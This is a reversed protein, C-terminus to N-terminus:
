KKLKKEAYELDKISDIDFWFGESEFAKMKGQKLMEKVSDTISCFGNKISKELVKFFYPSIIFMGTDVANYKKLNKGISIVKENKVYVKTADKIDLINRTNKDICLVCENNKLKFNLFKTLKKPHFIHDSMLLIFNEKLMDKAKIVSVGNPRKWEENHVYRIRVGYKKGDKLYDSIKNGMYGTVILFDTIGAKQTSLIIREIIPIGLIKLLSKPKTKAYVGLRTGEGAAIILAKFKFNM